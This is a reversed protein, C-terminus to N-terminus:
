RREDQAARAALEALGKRISREIGACRECTAYQVPHGVDGIGSRVANACDVRVEGQSGDKPLAEITSEVLDVNYRRAIAQWDRSTASILAGGCLMPRPRPSGLSGLLDRIPKTRDDDSM